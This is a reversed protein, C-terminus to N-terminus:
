QVKCLIIRGNECVFARYYVIKRQLTKFATTRWFLLFEYYYNRNSRNQHTQIRNFVFYTMATLAVLTFVNKLRVILFNSGNRYQHSFYRFFDLFFFRAFVM